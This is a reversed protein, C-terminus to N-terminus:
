SRLNHKFFRVFLFEHKVRIIQDQGGQVVAVFQLSNCSGLILDLSKSNIKLAPYFGSENRICILNIFIQLNISFFIHSTIHSKIIVWTIM